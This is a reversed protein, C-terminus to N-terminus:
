FKAEEDCYRCRYVEDDTHDLYFVQDIGPETTTVCRPNVCTIVNVVREPLTPTQKNM